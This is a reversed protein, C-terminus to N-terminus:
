KSKQKGDKKVKEPEAESVKEPLHEEHQKLMKETSEDLKKQEAKLQDMAISRMSKMDIVGGLDEDPPMLHPPIEDWGLEPRAPSSFTKNCVDNQCILMLTGPPTQLFQGALFSENQKTAPNFKIHSCNRQNRELALEFQLTAEAIQRDAEERTKQDGEEVKIERELNANLLAQIRSKMGESIGPVSMLAALKVIRDTAPSAM